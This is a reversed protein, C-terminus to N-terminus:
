FKSLVCNSRHFDSGRYSRFYKEPFRKLTKAYFNIVRLIKSPSVVSKPFPIIHFFTVETVFDRSNLRIKTM